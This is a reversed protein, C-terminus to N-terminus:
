DEEDPIEDPNIYPAADAEPASESDGARVRVDVIEAGPFRELVAAV